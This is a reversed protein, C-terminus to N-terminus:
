TPERSTVRGARHPSDVDDGGGSIRVPQGFEAPVVVDGADCQVRVVFRRRLVGQGLGSGDIHDIVQHVADALRVETIGVVTGGGDHRVGRPLGTNPPDHVESSEDGVVVVQGFVQGAAGLDGVRQADVAAGVHHPQARRHDDAGPRRRELHQAVDAIPKQEDRQRRPRRVRDVRDRDGVDEVVEDGGGVGVAHRGACVVDIARLGRGVAIQQAGIGAQGSLPAGLKGHRHHIGAHHRPHRSRHQGDGPSQRRIQHLGKIM